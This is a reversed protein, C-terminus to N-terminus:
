VPANNKGFFDYYLRGGKRPHRSVIGELTYEILKEIFLKTFLKGGCKPCLTEKEDLNLSLGCTGCVFDIKM